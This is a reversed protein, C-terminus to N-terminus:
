FVHSEEVGSNERLSGLIQRCCVEFMQKFAEEDSEFAKFVHDSKNSFVNNLDKSNIPLNYHQVDQSLLSFTSIFERDNGILIHKEELEDLLDDDSIDICFYACIFKFMWVLLVRNKTYLEINYM